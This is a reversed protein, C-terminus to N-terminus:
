KEIDVKKGGSEYSEKIASLLYVPKILDEYSRIMEGTRIMNVFEECERLFIDDLSIEKMATKEKSYVAGAYSSYSDNVFNCNVSFGDYNVIAYVSQNLSNASFLLILPNYSYLSGSLSFAGSVKVNIMFSSSVKSSINTFAGNSTSKSFSVTKRYETHETIGVFSYETSSMVTSPSLIYISM